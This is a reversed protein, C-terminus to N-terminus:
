CLGDQRAKVAVETRNRVGLKRCIARVDAKVVPENLGLQAAIEKNQLGGCIRLLVQTERPKLPSGANAQQALGTLHQVPVYVEGAAILLLARQLTRLPLTKPVFGMAGMDLARRIIEAPINGSFLTVGKGNADLLCRVGELGSVGPMHYDLLVVDFPGHGAIELQADEISTATTVRFGFLESLAGSLAECM